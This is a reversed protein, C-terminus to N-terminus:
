VHARGIKLNSTKSLNDKNSAFLSDIMPKAEWSFSPINFYLTKENLLKAEFNYNENDIIEKGNKVFGSILEGNKPKITAFALM